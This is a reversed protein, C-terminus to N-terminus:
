TLFNQSQVTASLIGLVYPVQMCRTLTPRAQDADEDFWQRAEITGTGDYIGITICTENISKFMMVGVVSVQLWVCLMTQKLTDDNLALDACCFAAM